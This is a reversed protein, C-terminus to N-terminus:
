CFRIGRRGSCTCASAKSVMRARATRRRARSVPYRRCGQRAAQSVGAGRRDKGGRDHRRRRQVRAALRHRRVARRCGSGAPQGLAARLTLAVKKKAEKIKKIDAKTLNETWGLWVAGVDFDNNFLDRAQNFGSLHDKHEHTGVVVDVRAKGAKGDRITDRVHAVIGKMKEATGVLVGCDILVHFPKGTKQPFTILFCDGLGQRYMRVRARFKKPSGPAVIPAAAAKKPKKKAPM